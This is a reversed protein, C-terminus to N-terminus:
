LRTVARLLTAMEIATRAADEGKNGCKGGARDMAQELSDCTLLGFGVPIAFNLAVSAIGKAAEGAVYDFHPTAGRIVAGLAILADYKKTKALAQLALPMEFAGPVTMVQIDSEKVGHRTLCEQAGRLLANGILDNVRGLVIAIKLGTGDMSAQIKKMM